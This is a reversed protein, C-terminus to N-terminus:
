IASKKVWIKKKKCVIRCYRYIDDQTHHWFRTCIHGWWSQEYFPWGQRGLSGSPRGWFRRHGWQRYSCARSRTRCRWERGGPRDQFWGLWFIFWLIGALNHYCTVEPLHRNQHHIEKGRDQFRGKTMQWIISLDKGFHWIKDFIQFIAHSHTNTHITRM